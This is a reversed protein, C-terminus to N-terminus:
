AVGRLENSYSELVGDAMLARPWVIATAFGIPGVEEVCTRAMSHAADFRAVTVADGLLLRYTDATEGVDVNRDHEGLMLFVPIGRAAMASLDGTADATFNRSVFGWRERSMPAPDDTRALYTEYDAGAALLGHTQDSLAIARERESADAGSADLEALLNFRGQRLWNIATGVAVVADVDDRAAAVKPFVWGAQSAGWLVIRDTPLHPSAVAWDIAASVEAARDDMRQSLWDGSSAGVGPKSWSLTAFGADAAAEFWPLYLGGNTADVPGDGHIVVVLGRAAGAPPTTVVGDLVGGAVPIAVREQHMRFENGILTVAILASAALVVAAVVLRAM